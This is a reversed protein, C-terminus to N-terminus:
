LYLERTNNLLQSITDESYSILCPEQLVFPKLKKRMGYCMNQYTKLAEEGYGYTKLLSILSVIGKETNNLSDYSEDMNNLHSTDCITPYHQKFSELSPLCTVEIRSSDYGLVINKKLMETTKNYIKVNGINSRKGLYYTADDASNYLEVYKRKDKKVILNRHKIPIDIAVDLRKIEFEKFYSKLGNYEKWYQTYAGTKNPNEDIVGKLIDSHYDYGNYVYKVTMSAGEGYKITWLHRYNRTSFKEKYDIDTRSINGLMSFLDVERRKDIIFGICINDISYIYGNEDYLENYHSIKGKEKIRKNSM